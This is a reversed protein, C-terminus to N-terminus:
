ADPKAKEDALILENAENWDCYGEMVLTDAEFCDISFSADCHAEAVRCIDDFDLEDGEEDNEIRCLIMIDAITDILTTRIDYPDCGPYHTLMNRINKIRTRNKPNDKFTRAVPDTPDTSETM